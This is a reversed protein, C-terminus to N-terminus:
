HWDLAFQSYPPVLGTCFLDSSGQFVLSYTVYQDNRYFLITNCVALVGYCKEGACEMKIYDFSWKEVLKTAFDTKMMWALISNLMFIIKQSSYSHNIMEIYCNVLLSALVLLLPLIAIVPSSFCPPQRHTMLQSSILSTSFMGATSTCFFALGAFCSTVISSLGGAIPLSM